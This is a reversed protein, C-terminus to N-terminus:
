RGELPYTTRIGRGHTGYRHDGQRLLFAGTTYSGHRLVAVRIWHHCHIRDADHYAVVVLCTPHQRPYGDTGLQGPDRGGPQDLSVQPM